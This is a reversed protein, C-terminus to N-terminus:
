ARAQQRTKRRAAALAVPGEEAAAAAGVPARDEIPDPAILMPRIFRRVGRHLVGWGGDAFWHVWGLLVCEGCDCRCDLKHNHDEHCDPLGDYAGDNQRLLQRALADLEQDNLREGPASCECVCHPREFDISVEALSRIRTAQPAGDEEDADCLIARPACLKEKGCLTVWFDRVRPANGDDAIVGDKEDLTITVASPLQVPDGCGDLALGPRVTVQLGCKEEVSIDLGCIVGCGFLSRFLLRNLERTYDVAATLDSDQLILGPSYRPRELLGTVTKSHRDCDCHNCCQSM